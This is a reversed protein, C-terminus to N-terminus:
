QQREFHLSVGFVKSVIGDGDDKFTMKAGGELKFGDNTEKWTCDTVEEESTFQATGDANLVLYTDQEFEGAEDKMTLSAAKWTGVYKSGSLDKNGSAGGCATLILCSVALLLCLPLAASKKM